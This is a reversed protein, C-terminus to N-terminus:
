YGLIHDLTTVYFPGDKTAKGEAVLQDMYANDRQIQRIRERMRRENNQRERVHLEATAMCEYEVYTCDNADAYAKKEVDSLNDKRRYWKRLEPLTMGQISHSKIDFATEIKVIIEEISKGTRKELETIFDKSLKGERYDQPLRKLDAQTVRKRKM